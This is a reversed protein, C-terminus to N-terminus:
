GKTRLLSHHTDNKEHLKYKNDNCNRFLRM